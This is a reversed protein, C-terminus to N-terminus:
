EEEKDGFYDIEADCHPCILKGEEDVLVSGCKPCLEKENTEEGEIKKDKDKKM